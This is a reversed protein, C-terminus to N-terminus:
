APDEIDAVFAEIKKPTGKLINRVEDDTAHQPVDKDVWMGIKELDLETGDDDYAVLMKADFVKTTVCQSNVYMIDDATLLVPQGPRVVPAQGNQLFIGIDYPCKNIVRYRKENM